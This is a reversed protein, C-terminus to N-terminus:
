PIVPRIVFVIADVTLPDFRVTALPELYLEMCVDAEFGLLERM